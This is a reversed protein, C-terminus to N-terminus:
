KFIFTRSFGCVNGIVYEAKAGGDAGDRYKRGCSEFVFYINSGYIAAEEVMPPLIFEKKLVFSSDSTSTSEYVYLDSNNNRGYSTSLMLYTKGNVVQFVAGQVKKPFTTYIVTASLVGTSSIVPSYFAIKSAETESFTGICLNGKYTTCFSSENKNKDNLKLKGHTIYRLSMSKVNSNQKAYNIFNVVESYKYYNISYGDTCVWLYGNAYTIGGAHIQEEIVLTTIYKKTSADMVYIVSNHIEEFCYATLFIYGGYIEIGQPTMDICTNGYVNTNEMGPYPILSTVKSGFKPFAYGKSDLVRCGFNNVKAMDGVVSTGTAVGETYIGTALSSTLMNNASLTSYGNSKLMNANEMNNFSINEIIDNINNTDNTDEEENEWIIEEPLNIEIEEPMETDFETVEEIDQILETMDIEIKKDEVEVDKVAAIINTTEVYFVMVFVSLFSLVRKFM